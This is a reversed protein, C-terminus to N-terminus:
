RTFVLNMWASTVRESWLDYFEKLIRYNIPELCGFSHGRFFWPQYGLDHFLQCFSVFEDREVAGPLFEVLVVPRCRELTKRGGLLVGLDDGNVDVKILDVRAPDPFLDDITVVQIDGSAAAPDSGDAAVFASQSSGRTRIERMARRDRAVIGSFIKVNELGNMRINHALVRVTDANGEAAYIKAEPGYALALAISYVGINAGVDLVVPRDALGVRRRWSNKLLVAFVYHDYTGLLKIERIIEDQERYCLQFPPLSLYSLTVSPPSTGTPSM